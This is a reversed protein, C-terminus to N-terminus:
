IHYINKIDVSVRFTADLINLNLYVRLTPMNISQKLEQFM